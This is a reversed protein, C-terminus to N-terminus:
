SISGEPPAMGLLAFTRALPDPVRVTLAFPDFLAVIVSFLVTGNATPAVAISEGVGLPDIELPDTDNENGEPVGPETEALADSTSCSSSGSLVCRLGCNTEPAPFVSIQAKPRLRVGDDVIRGDGPIVNFPVANTRVPLKTDVKVEAGDPVNFM